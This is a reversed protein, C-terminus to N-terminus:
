SLDLHAPVKPLTAALPTILTDWQRAKRFLRRVAPHDVDGVFANQYYNLTRITGGDLFDVKLAKTTLPVNPYYYHWEEVCDHAYAEIEDLDGFYVQEKFIEKGVKQEPHPRFFYESGHKRGHAYQARHVLEHGIVELLRFRFHEWKAKSLSLRRTAPDLCLVVRITPCKELNPEICYGEIAPYKLKGASGHEADDNRARLRIGVADKTSKFTTNLRSVFTSVNIDRSPGDIIADFVGDVAPRIASLHSTITPYLVSLNV